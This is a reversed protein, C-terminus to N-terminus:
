KPAPTRAAERDVMMQMMDMRKAMAEPSMGAKGGKMEGMMHMGHQMAKMHEGMLAQREGATKASVMKTHMEKM